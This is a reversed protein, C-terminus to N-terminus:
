VARLADRRARDRQRQSLGAIVGSQAAPVAAAWSSCEAAVPCGQCLARAPETSDGREPFMLEQRGKCAADAAWSGPAGTVLERLFVTWVVVLERGAEREADRDLELDRILEGVHM